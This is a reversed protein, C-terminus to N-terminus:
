NITLKKIFLKKLQSSWENVSEYRYYKKNYYYHPPNNKDIKLQKILNKYKQPYLGVLSIKSFLDWKYISIAKSYEKEAIKLDNNSQHILGNIQHTLYHNKNLAVMERYQSNAEKMKNNILLIKTFDARLEILGNRRKLVKKFHFKSKKFNGLEGYALAMLWNGRDHEPEYKLVNKLSSIVKKYYGLFYYKEGLTLYGLYAQEKPFDPLINELSNLETVIPKGQHFKIEIKKSYGSISKPYKNILSNAYNLAKGYNGFVMEAYCEADLLSASTHRLKNAKEITKYTQITDANELKNYITNSFAVPYYKDIKSIKTFHEVLNVLATDMDLLRERVIERDDYQDRKPSYYSNVGEAFYEWVSASQYRSIFTKQGKKEKKKTNNYVKEIKDKESQTLVYHVQHTMEHLITNYKHFIMREVDEIGTVTIFGGCGRVDDWLRSDYSIRADRMSELGPCESLLSYLPKIYHYSGSAILVPIFNEWPKVSIAVRKQIRSSLSNWNLVYKEIQDIEPIDTNIFRNNDSKYYVANQRKLGEISKAIGNHARGYEPIIKLASQFYKLADSYKNEEWNISGLYIYPEVYQPYEKIWNKLTKKAETIKRNKLFKNISNFTEWNESNMIFEEPYIKFLESYIKDTYGNGLQYHATENLPNIELAQRFCFIADSVKSDRIFCWGLNTLISENIYNTELLEILQKEADVFNYQKMFLKANLFKAKHFCKSNIKESILISNIISDSAEFQFQNMLFDAKALQHITHNPMKKLYKEYTSQLTSYNETLKLWNYFLEFYKDNKDKESFSLLRDSINKYNLNRISIEIKYLERTPESLISKELEKQLEEIKGLDFLKDLKKITLKSTEIQSLSNKLSTKYFSQFSEYNKIDLGLLLTSMLIITIIIHKMKIGKQKIM